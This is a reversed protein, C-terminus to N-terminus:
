EESTSMESLNKAKLLLWIGLSLEGIVMIVMFIFLLAEPVLFSLYFAMVYCFSAIMLLVGLGRPIYGSKFVSYGLVFLHGTFFAYGILKITGYSYADIFQFVLALLIIIMIATYILRLLATLLALNKNSPKLVIYLALAIGTDLTLIILYVAVGIGFLSENTKIENVLAAADGPAILHSFILEDVLFALFVMIILAIGVVRAATGKSIDDIKL